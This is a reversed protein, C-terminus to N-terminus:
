VEVQVVVEAPVPHTPSLTQKKPPPNQHHDLCTCRLPQPIQNNPMTSAQAPRLATSAPPQIQFITTHLTCRARQQGSISTMSDDLCPM